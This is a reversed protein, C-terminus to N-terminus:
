EANGISQSMLILGKLKLSSAFTSNAPIFAIETTGANGTLGPEWAMSYFMGPKKIQKNPKRKAWDKLLQDSLPETAAFDFVRCGTVYEVQTVVLELTRTGVKRRFNAGFYNTVGIEAAADKGFALLKGLQSDQAPEFKEWGVKTASLEVAKASTTDACVTAFADLVERSPYAQQSSATLAQAALFLFPQM